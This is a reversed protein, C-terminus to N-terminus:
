VDPVELEVRELILDRGTASLIKLGATAYGREERVLDFATIFLDVEVGARSGIRVQLERVASAPHAGRARDTQDFLAHVLSVEHM